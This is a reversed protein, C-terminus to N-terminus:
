RLCLNFASRNNVAESSTDRHKGLLTNASAGCFVFMAPGDALAVPDTVFWAMWVNFPGKGIAVNPEPTDQGPGVSLIVGKRVLLM